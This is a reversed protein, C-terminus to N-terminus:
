RGLLLAMMPATGWVRWPKALPITAVARVIPMIKPMDTEPDSKPASTRRSRTTAPTSDEATAPAYRWATLMPAAMARSPASVLRTRPPFLAWM